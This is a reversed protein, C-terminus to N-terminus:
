QRILGNHQKSYEIDKDDKNRSCCYCQGGNQVLEKFSLEVGCSYCLHKKKEM